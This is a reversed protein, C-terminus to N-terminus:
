WYTLTVKDAWLLYNTMSSNGDLQIAVNIDFASIARSWYYRNIYYKKGDLTISIYHIKGDSTRAYEEVLHHWTYPAIYNCPHGTPVWKGVATDWVSWQKSTKLSCETGFVYRRGGVTQNVDFELAQPANADKIYFYLDYRFKSVSSNGGLQKWWLASAYPTSGGLWFQVSKGDISPNNVFHTISHPTRPGAANIGSCVDCHDWGTMEDINSFTKTGTSPVPSGGGSSTGGVNVTMAKKFVAGTTDWAQVTVAHSGGSMNVWTDLKNSNVTYVSNGDVYIRMATIPYKSTASAVFHAPSSVTSGSAPSSVYVGTGTSPQVTTSGSVNINLAQKQVAGTTDWAQIIVSHWGGGMPLWTDIKNSNVTYASNGDVYVRMATIPSGSTANAVIHVPSSVTAGNSPSSVYVGAFAFASLVMVAVATRLVKQYIL